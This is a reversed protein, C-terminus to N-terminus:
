SFLLQIALNGKLTEKLGQLTIVKQNCLLLNRYLEQLAAKLFHRKNDKTTLRELNYNSKFQLSKIPVSVKMNCTLRM